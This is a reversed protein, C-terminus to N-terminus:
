DGGSEFMGDRGSLVETRWNAIFSMRLGGETTELNKRQIIKCGTFGSVDFIFVIKVCMARM